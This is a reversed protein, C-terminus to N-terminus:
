ARAARGLTDSFPKIAAGIRAADTKRIAEAVQEIELDRIQEIDAHLEDVQQEMHNIQERVAVVEARLGTTPESAMLAVKIRADLRLLDNRSAIIGSQLEDIRTEIQRIAEDPKLYRDDRGQRQIIFLEGDLSKFKM